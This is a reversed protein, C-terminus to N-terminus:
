PSFELLVMPCFGYKVSGIEHVARGFRAWLRVDCSIRCHMRDDESAREAHTLLERAFMLTNKGNWEVIVHQTFDAPIEKVSVIAGKPLSAPVYSNEEKLMVSIPDTVRYTKM